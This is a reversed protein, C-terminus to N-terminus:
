TFFLFIYIYLKGNRLLIINQSINKPVYAGVDSRFKPFLFEKVFIFGRVNTMFLCGVLSDSYCITIIKFIIFCGLFDM